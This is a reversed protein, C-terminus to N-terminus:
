EKKGKIVVLFMQSDTSEFLIEQKEVDDAEILSSFEEEDRYFLVWDHWYEMFWRSTNSHHYNGVLLRGGPELLSYLKNLVAKAVPQTLYDFLGMSYIYHFTGWKKSLDPTRLMTRVSDEIFTAKIKKGIRKEIDHISESAEKLADSDQDLLTCEYQDIESDSLFLDQLEYAPGCAVSMFRFIEGGGSNSRFDERAKQLISPVMARRNRVAQAAPHEISIKHLIKGFTSSGEYMNDYIMKMMVSDGAYGRPKLNTRKMFPSCMIIDWLQRRLYFGHLEHEMRSYDKILEELKKLYGEFFAMFDRGEKRILVTQLHERVAEPEKALNRDFDDFFQRYVKMDFSVRSIYNVFDDRVNEKQAFILKIERVQREISVQEGDKFLKHFNFIDEAFVLYYRGKNDCIYNCLGFNFEGQDSIVTFGSFTSDEPARGDDFTVALTFTSSCSVHVSYTDTDKRLIGKLSNDNVTNMSNVLLRL